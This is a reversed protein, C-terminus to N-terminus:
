SEVEAVLGTGIEYLITELDPRGSKNAEMSALLFSVSISVKDIGQKDAEVRLLRGAEKLRKIAVERGPVSDLMRDEPATARRYIEAKKATALLGEMKGIRWFRFTDEEDVTVQIYGARNDFIGLDNAFSQVTFDADELKFVNKIIM